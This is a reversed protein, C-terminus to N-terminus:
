YVRTGDLLDCRVKMQVNARGCATSVCVARFYSPFRVKYFTLALGSVLTGCMNSREAGFTERWQDGSPALDFDDRLTGPMRVLAVCHAGGYGLDCRCLRTLFGSATWGWM